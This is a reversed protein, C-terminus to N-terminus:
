KKILKVSRTKNEDTLTMYYVGAPLRTLDLESRKTLIGKMVHAGSPTYIAYNVEDEFTETWDILVTTIVPNPTVVVDKLEAKDVSLPATVNVVFLQEASAQSPDTAKVRVTAKGKLLGKLLLTNETLFVKVFEPNENVFQYKLSEQDPDTFYNNLDIEASFEDEGLNLDEFPAVEPARNINEVELKLLNKSEAGWSDKAFLTVIHSGACDYDAAIVMYYVGARNELDIFSPTNPDLTLEYADNEPDSVQLMFERTENEKMSMIQNATNVAVVPANNSSFVVPIAHEAKAPDNTLIRINAQHREQTLLKGNFSLHLPAEEGAAIEGSLANKAVMWFEDSGQYELARVLYVVDLFGQSKSLDYWNMNDSYFYRDQVVKNLLVNSHGQPNTAGMPYVFVIFFEEGPYVAVIEDMPVTIYSGMKDGG